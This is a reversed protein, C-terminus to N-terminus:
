ALLEWNQKGQALRVTLQNKQLKNISVHLKGPDVHINYNGKSSSM